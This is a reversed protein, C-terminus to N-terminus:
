EHLINNWSEYLFNDPDERNPNLYSRIITKFDKQISLPYLMFINYSNLLDEFASKFDPFVGSFSHVMEESVDDPLLDLFLEENSSHVFVNGIRLLKVSGGDAGAELIIEAKGM